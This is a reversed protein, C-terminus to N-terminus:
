YENYKARLNEVVRKLCSSCSTPQDKLKNVRNYITYIMDREEISKLSNGNYTAFFLDLLEYEDQTLAGRKPFWNNLKKKRSECGCDKELAKAVTDVVKKIGLPKTIYKEIDDGLGKSKM